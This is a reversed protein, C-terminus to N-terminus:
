IRLVGALERSHASFLSGRSPSAGPALKRRGHSSRSSSCSLLRGPARRAQTSSLQARLFIFRSPLIVLVARAPSLSLSPRNSKKRRCSIDLPLYSSPFLLHQLLKLPFFFSVVHIPALSKLPPLILDDSPPQFLFPSLSIRSSTEM